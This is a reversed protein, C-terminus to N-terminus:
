YIEITSFVADHSFLINHKKEISDRNFYYSQYPNHM